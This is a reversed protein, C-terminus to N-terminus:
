FERLSEHVGKHIEYWFNYAAEHKNNRFDDLWEPLEPHRNNEVDRQRKLFTLVFDATGNRNGSSRRTAATSGAPRSRSASRSVGGEQRVALGHDRAADGRGLPPPLPVRGPQGHDAGGPVARRQDPGLTRPPAFDNGYYMYYKGMIAMPSLVGPTWYQNPVMWGKRAFAVYVFPDLVEKGKDRALRRAFKRAGEGLDLLGRRQIIADLLDIGLDANHMSDTEVAFRRPRSSPGSPSAWTRGARALRQDLCEMLWALVGGVSIADFGYADAHHNLREAARQDFIGCLPGMTQYPEYDKKYEDRYKKCVAPCPEGCTHQQKPVITEENFQRLYHDVIFRQHLELRESEDMYITRYNFAIIRGGM